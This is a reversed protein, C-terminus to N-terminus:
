LLEEYPRNYSQQIPVEAITNVLSFEAPKSLFGAKKARIAVTMSMASVRDRTTNHERMRRLVSSFIQSMRMKISQLILQLPHVARYRPLFVSSRAQVSISTQRRGWAEPIQGDNNPANVTQIVSQVEVAADTLRRYKSLMVCRFTLPRMRSFVPISGPSSEDFKIARMRVVAM